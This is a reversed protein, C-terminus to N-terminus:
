FWGCDYNIACDPAGVAFAGLLEKLIELLFQDLLDALPQGVGRLHGAAHLADRRQQVLMVHRGVVDEVRARLDRGRVGGHAVGLGLVGLGHVRPQARGPDPGVEVIAVLLQAVADAVSRVLSVTRTAADSRAVADSVSRLLVLTRSAADGQGQPRGNASSSPM